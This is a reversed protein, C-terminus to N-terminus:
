DLVEKNEKSNERAVSLLVMDPNEAQAQHEVVYVDQDFAIGLLGDGSEDMVVGRDEGPHEVAAVPQFTRQKITEPHGVFPAVFGFPSCESINVVIWDLCPEAFASFLPLPIEKSVGSGSVRERLRNDQPTGGGTQSPCDTNDIVLSVM